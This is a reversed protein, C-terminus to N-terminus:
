IIKEAKAPREQAAPDRDLPRRDVGLERRSEFLPEDAIIEPLDLLIRVSERRQDSVSDSILRGDDSYV